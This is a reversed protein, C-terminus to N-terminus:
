ASASASAAASAPRQSGETSPNGHSVAQIVSQSCFPPPPLIRLPAPPGSLCQQGAITGPERPLYSARTGPVLYRGTPGLPRASLVLCTCRVRAWSNCAHAHSPPVTGLYHLVAVCRPFSPTSGAGGRTESAGHPAPPLLMLHLLLWCRCCCDSSSCCLPPPPPPPRPCLCPAALICVYQLSLCLHPHLAIHLAIWLHLTMYDFRTCSHIVSM